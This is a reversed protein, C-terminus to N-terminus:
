RCKMSFSQRFVGSSLVAVIYVSMAHVCHGRLPVCPSPHKEVGTVKLIQLGLPM